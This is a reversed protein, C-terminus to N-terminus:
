FMKYGGKRLKSIAAGGLYSGILGGVAPIIDAVYYKALQGPIDGWGQYIVYIIVVIVYMYIPFWTTKILMNLIFGIGFTLILILVTAIAVQILIIM